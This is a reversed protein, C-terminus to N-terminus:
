LVSQRGVIRCSPKMKDYMVGALDSGCPDLDVDKFPTLLRVTFLSFTMFVLDLTIVSFVSHMFGENVAIHSPNDSSTMHDLVQKVVDGANKLQLFCV